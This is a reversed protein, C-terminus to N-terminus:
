SPGSASTRHIEESIILGYIVMFIGIAWIAQQQM